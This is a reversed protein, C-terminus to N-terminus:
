FWLPTKGAWESDPYRRHLLEFAARSTPLKPPAMGFHGARVVLHLAEPVRADTRHARAWALVIGGLYAPAAPIELLKERERSLEARQAPSLFTPPAGVAAPQRKLDYWWNDRLSDLRDLPARRGAGGQIFPQMGPAKLMLLAAAFAAEEAGRAALYGAFEEDLQPALERLTPVVARAAAHDGLLVSRVFLGRALERRLHPPIDGSAVALARVASPFWTEMISATERDFLTRGDFLARSQEDSAGPTFPLLRTYGDGAEGVPLRPADRLFEELSRATRLREALLLNRDAASWRPDVLLRDAAARGAEIRGADILLRLGLYAVTPYAPSDPTVAAGAELLRPTEPYGFDASMLAALLWPLSNTREWAAFAHGFLAASARVPAGDNEWPRGSMSWLTALWETLDDAVPQREGQWRRGRVLYSYERFRQLIDPDDSPAALGAGFGALYGAPDQFARVLKLHSAAPGHVAVRAPDALLAAFQEEAARLLDKDAPSGPAIPVVAKRLLTRGVLYAAIDRWPSAADVSIERFGRAAEDYDEAYFHAAAVQYARDARCLPAAAAPAPEPIARGEACNSFVTDQASVWALVEPSAAGFRGARERLTGTARRFADGPCNLFYRWEGPTNDNRSIGTAWAYRDIKGPPPAAGAIKAREALWEAIPSTERQEQRVAPELLEHSAQREVVTLGKGMLTRYAPWLQPLGYGPQLVGVDGDLFRELPISTVRRPTFVVEPFSPSCATAAGPRAFLAAILLAPFLARRNM